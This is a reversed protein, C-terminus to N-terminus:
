RLRSVSVFVGIAIALIDFYSFHLGWPVIWAIIYSLATATGAIVMLITGRKRNVALSIVEACGYGVVAGLLINLYFFSVYRAVLGWLAGAAVAMGLAAGVARFYYQPSM